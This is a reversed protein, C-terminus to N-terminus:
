AFVEARALPLGQADKASLLPAGELRWDIALAPDNWLICREHEPAYFDTTKYLFDASESLVVFGHAFGPPVWLQAQNDESLEAGVWRGFTPAGRRIDLAVDFVRGRAVRVLKGQPQRVQYHLGRLVGRASRSHNDQVFHHRTGTAADFARQNFSEFFFGRADGFVKPEILVVEPIALPTARM